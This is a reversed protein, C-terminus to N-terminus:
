APELDVPETPDPDDPDAIPDGVQLGTLTGGVKLTAVDCGVRLALGLGAVLGAFAPLTMTLALADFRQRWTLDEGVFTLSFGEDQGDTIVGQYRLTQWVWALALVGALVLLAVSGRRAVAVVRLLARQNLGTLDEETIVPSLESVHETRGRDESTM